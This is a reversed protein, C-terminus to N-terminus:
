SHLSPGFSEARRAPGGEVGKGKAEATSVKGDDFYGSTSTSEADRDYEGERLLPPTSPPLTKSKPAVNEKSRVFGLRPRSQARLPRGSSIQEALSVHSPPPTHRVNPGPPTLLGSLFSSTSSRAPKSPTQSRSAGGSVVDPISGTSVDRNKRWNGWAAAAALPLARPSSALNTINALSPFTQGGSLAREKEQQEMQLNAQLRIVADKVAERDYDPQSLTQIIDGLDDVRVGLLERLWSIEMDRDKLKAPAETDVKSLEQELKEIRGERDQLQEQLVMISERLAQPSIKEPLGLGGALLSPTTRSSPLTSHGRATQAAQAAAHAASKAIELKEELHTAKDMLHETKAESLSLRELFNAESRQKDELVNHLAREHQAKMDELTREHFRYHEQLAAERAEAVERLADSRSESAEQLMLEYRAKITNAHAESNELQTQLNAIECELSARVMNVQNNAAEIDAEMSVRTRHVEMRGAERADNFEREFRAASKQVEVNELRLNDVMDELSQNARQMHEVVVQLRLAEKEQEELRVIESELTERKHVEAQIKSVLLENRAAHDDEKRKWSAQDRAVNQAAMAMDEQLRDFKGRLSKRFQLSEEMEVKLADVTRRLDKNEDMADDIDERWQNRSLRYEELTSELAANKAALDSATKQLNDQASEVLAARVLDQKREEHFARLSRETEEASERQRASEEEAIRLLRQTDALTDEAARRARLEDDARTDAIKLMSELGSIQLQYKEATAAGHSQTIPNSRGRLQRALADEVISKLNEAQQLEHNTGSLSKKFEALAQAIEASVSASSSRQQTALAELMAAKMKELRRDKRPSRSRAQHVGEDDDEDDADSHEIEASTSRRERRNGQDVTLQALSDQIVALSQELPELREQLLGGVLSDVHNDFFRTRHQLKVDETSSIADDWDSIPVDGANNLRHVPSEVAMGPRGYTMFNGQCSQFDIDTSEELSLQYQQQLRKLSPSRAEGRLNVGPLLKNATIQDAVDSISGGTDEQRTWAGDAKEVGLDSDNENLHKMVADIENFSPEILSAYNVGACDPYPVHDRSEPETTMSIDLEGAKVNTAYTAQSASPSSSGAYPSEARGGATFIPPSQNNNGDFNFDFPKGTVSPSPSVSYPLTAIDADASKQSEKIVTEQVSSPSDMHPASLAATDESTVEDYIAHRSRERPLPSPPRAANFNEAEDRRSFEFPEWTKEQDTSSERSLPSVLDQELQYPATNEKGTGLYEAKHTERQPSQAQNMETLPLSPTAFQPIQDGDSGARRLRKQRGDAQTIRGSEDEQGEDDRVNSSHLDDPRVIAIAKSRKAPKIIDPLTFDGFIKGTTSALGESGSQKTSATHSAIENVSRPAFGAEAKFSPGSSSFNFKGTPFSSVRTVSPKFTPAAINFGSGITGFLNGNTEEAANIVQLPGHVVGTAPKPVFHHDAFASNSPAVSTKPNFKFEKADVNLKSMSPKSQHKQSQSPRIGQSVSRREGQLVTSSFSHHTENSDSAASSHQPLGSAGLNTDTGSLDTATNNSNDNIREDEGAGFKRIGLATQRPLSYPLSAGMQLHDLKDFATTPQSYFQREDKEFQRQISDELHYEADDIEKQLTESLNHRHGRPIPNVIDPNSRYTMAQEAPEGFGSAKSPYPFRRSFLEQQGFDSGATGESTPKGPAQRKSEPDYVSEPALVVGMNQFSGKITPSAGPPPHQHGSYSQPSWIGQGPPTPHQFASEVSHKPIKIMGYLDAYQSGPSALSEVQSTANTSPIFPPSFPNTHSAVRNSAASSGPIPPSLPLSPYRSSQRSLSTIVPSKSTNLDEDGFSVGLARLKEEKLLNVYAEWERRDPISVRYLGMTWERNIDNPDPYILRSQGDAEGTDLSDGSISHGFGKTNYGKSEWERLRDEIDTPKLLGMREDGHGRADDIPLAIICAKGRWVVRRKPRTTSGLSSQVPREDSTSLDPTRATPNVVPAESISREFSPPLPLPKDVQANGSRTGGPLPPSSDAFKSDLMNRPITPEQEFDTPFTEFDKPKVTDTSNRSKHRRTEESRHATQTRTNERYNVFSSLTPTKLGEGRQRSDLGLWSIDNELQDGSAAITPSNNRTGVSEDSWWNGRETSSQGSLYQRIWDETFGRIPRFRERDLPTGAAYDELPSSGVQGSGSGREISTQIGPPLLSSSQSRKPKSYRVPSDDSLDSSVTWHHSHGTQGAKSGSPLQYPSGWAATYYLSSDTRPHASPSEATGGYVSSGPFARLPPLTPSSLQRAHGRSPATWVSSTRSHPSGGIVSQGKAVAVLDLGIVPLSPPSSEPSRSRPHTHIAIYVNMDARAMCYLQCKQSNIECRGSRRHSCAIRSRKSVDLFAHDEPAGSNFRYTPCSLEAIFM